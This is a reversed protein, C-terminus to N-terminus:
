RVLMDGFGLVGDYLARVPLVTRATANYRERAHRLHEVVTNHSLGLIDAIQADSKGRGVYMVCEIQRPTLLPGPARPRTTLLRRSADFAYQGALQAILLAEPATDDNAAAAFSISGLIEGPVHAPVTIGDALGYTSASALIEHDLATLPIIDGIDRWCFATLRTHSARHMPDAPGLGRRDFWEVWAGPYNHLRFGRTTAGGAGVHQVMAFHRFRLRHCTDTLVLALDDLSQTDRFAAMLHSVAALTTMTQKAVSVRWRTSVTM